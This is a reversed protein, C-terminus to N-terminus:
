NSSPHWNKNQCRKDKNHLSNGVYHLNWINSLFIGHPSVLSCTYWTASGTLTHQQTLTSVVSMGSYSCVVSSRSTLLVSHSQSSILTKLITFFFPYVSLIVCTRPIFGLTLENKTCNPLWKRWGNTYHEGTYWFPSVQGPGWWGDKIIPVPDQEQPNLQRLMVNVVCWWRAGLNFLAARGTSGRRAKTDQQLAFKVRQWCTSHSPLNSNYSKVSRGLFCLLQINM